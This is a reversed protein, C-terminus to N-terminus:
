PQASVVLCLDHSYIHQRKPSILPVYGEHFDPSSQQQRCYTSSPPSGAKRVLSPSALGYTFPRSDQRAHYPIEQIDRVTMLMDSLLQDLERHQELVASQCLQLHNGASSIGSDM